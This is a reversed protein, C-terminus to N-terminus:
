AEFAAWTRKNVPLLFLCAAVFLLLMGLRAPLDSWARAFFLLMTPALAIGLVPLFLPKAIAISHEPAALKAFRSALACGVWAGFVLSLSAGLGGLRGILLWASLLAVAGNLAAVWFWGSTRKSLDMPLGAVRRIGELTPLFLLAGAAPAAARYGPSVVLLLEPALMAVAFAFVCTLSAYIHLFAGARLLLRKQYRLAFARQELALVLVTNLAAFPAALKIAVDYRGAESLSDFTLVLFRDLERLAYLSQMVGLPWGLALLARTSRATGSGFLDRSAFVLPGLTALQAAVLAAMWGTYGRQLVVIFLIALAAELLGLSAVFWAVVRDRGRHRLWDTLTQTNARLLLTGASLTVALTAQSDGLLLQAIQSRLAFAGAFCVIAVANRTLLASMFVERGNASDDAALRFAATGLGLDVLTMFAFYSLTALVAFAGLEEPALSWTLVPVVVLGAARQAFIAAGYGGLVGAVQRLAPSRAKKV